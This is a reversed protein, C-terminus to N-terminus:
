PLDQEHILEGKKRFNQRQHQTGKLNYYPREMLFISFFFKGSQLKDPMFSLMLTAMQHLFHIFVM